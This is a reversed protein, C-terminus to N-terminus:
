LVQQLGQRPGVNTWAAAPPAQHHSLPDSPIPSSPERPHSTSLPTLPGRLTPCPVCLGQNPCRHRHGRVYSGPLRSGPPLQWLGRLEEARGRGEPSGHATTCTPRQVGLGQHRGLPSASCLPRESLGEQAEAGAEESPLQPVEPLDSLVETGQGTTCHPQWTPTRHSSLDGDPAPVPGPGARM